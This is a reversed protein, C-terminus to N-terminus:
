LVPVTGEVRPAGLPARASCFVIRAPVDLGPKGIHPPATVENSLLKKVSGFHATVKSGCSWVPSGPRPAKV